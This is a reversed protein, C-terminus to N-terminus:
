GSTAARTTGPQAGDFNGARPRTRFVVPEAAGLHLEHWLPRARRADRFRCLVFRRERRCPASRAGGARRGGGDGRLGDGDRRVVCPLPARRRGLPASRAGTRSCRHCPCPGGCGCEGGHRLSDGPRLPRCAGGMARIRDRDLDALPWGIRAHWAGRWAGHVDGGGAAHRPVRQQRRDDAICPHIGGPVASAHRPHRRRHRAM